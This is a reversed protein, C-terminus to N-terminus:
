KRGNRYLKIFKWWVFVVVFAILPTAIYLLFRNHRIINVVNVSQTGVVTWFSAWIFDGCLSYFTYTLVNMRSIGSVWIAPTRTVGIIRSIFVIVGGYKDYWRSVRDIDEHTLRLYRGYKEVFPRGGYYGALYAAINGTLNGLTAVAVVLWFSFIDKAILVGAAFFLIEVPGPMGTGEIALGVFVAMYGYQVVYDYVHKAFGSSM